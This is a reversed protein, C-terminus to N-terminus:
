LTWCRLTALANRGSLGKFGSRKSSGPSTWQPNQVRKMIYYRTSYKFAKAELRTALNTVRVLPLQQGMQADDGYANGADLGNLQTASITYSTDRTLSTPVSTITPGWAPNVTGASAYIRVIDSVRTERM